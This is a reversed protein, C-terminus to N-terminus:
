TAFIPQSLNYSWGVACDGNVVAPKDAGVCSADTSRCEVLGDKNTGGWMGAHRLDYTIVELAFRADAVMDMQMENVAQTKRSSVHLSFAGTVIILGIVMAVLLEVLSFGKSQKRNNM